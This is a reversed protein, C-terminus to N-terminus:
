QGASYCDFDLRAAIRTSVVSVTAGSDILFNLPEACNNVYTDVFMLSEFRFDVEVGPVAAPAEKGPRAQADPAQAPFVSAVLCLTLAALLRVLNRSLMAAGRTSSTFRRPM